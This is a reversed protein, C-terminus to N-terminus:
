RLQQERIDLKSEEIIFLSRDTEERSKRELSQKDVRKKLNILCIQLAEYKM